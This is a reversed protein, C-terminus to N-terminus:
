ATLPSFPNERSSLASHRSTHVPLQESDGVAFPWSQTGVANGQSGCSVVSGRCGRRLSFLRWLLIEVTNFPIHCWHGSREHYRLMSTPSRKHAPMNIHLKLVRPQGEGGPQQINPLIVLLLIVKGCRKNLNISQNSLYKHVPAPSPITTLSCSLIPLCPMRTGPLNYM